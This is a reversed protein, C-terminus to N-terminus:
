EIKQQEKEEFFFGNVDNETPYVLENKIENRTLFPCHIVDDTVCM